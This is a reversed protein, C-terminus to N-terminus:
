WTENNNQNAYTISETLKLETFTRNNDYMGALFIKGNSLQILCSPLQNNFYKDPQLTSSGNKTVKYPYDGSIIKLGIITSKERVLLDTIDEQSRYLLASSSSGIGFFWGYNTGNVRLEGSSNVLFLADDCSKIIKIDNVFQDSIKTLSVKTYSRNNGVYKYIHENEDIFFFTFNTDNAVYRGDNYSNNIFNLINGESEVISKVKLTGLDLKMVKFFSKNVNFNFHFTDLVAVYVIGNKHVFVVLSPLISIGIDGTYVRTNIVRIDEIDQSNIVNKNEDELTFSLMDKSNLGSNISYYNYSGIVAWSSITTDYFFFFFSFYDTVGSYSLIQGFQYKEIKPVGARYTKKVEKITYNNGPNYSGMRNVKLVLEKQKTFYIYVFKPYGVISAYEVNFMTEINGAPPSTSVIVDSNVEGRSFDIDQGKRDTNENVLATFSGSYFMKSKTKSYVMHGGYLFFDQNIKKSRIDSYDQTTMGSPLQLPRSPMGDKPMYFIYLKGNLFIMSTYMQAGDNTGRRHYPKISFYSFDRTYEVNFIENAVNVFQLSSNLTDTWGRANKNFLYRIMMTGEEGTPILSASIPYDTDNKQQIKKIDDINKTYGATYTEPYVAIANGSTLIIVRLEAIIGNISIKTLKLNHYYCPMYDIVSSVPYEAEPLFGSSLAFKFLMPNKGLITLFETIQNPKVKVIKGKGQGLKWNDEYVVMDTYFLNLAKTASSSKKKLEAIEKNIDTVKDDIEKKKYFDTPIKADVETKTYYDTPIKNDVETKTYVEEKTYSDVPMRDNVLIINSYSYFVPDWFSEKKIAIIAFLVFKNNLNDPIYYKDKIKKYEIIIEEETPEKDGFVKECPVVYIANYDDMNAYLLQLTYDKRTHPIVKGAIIFLPFKDVANDNFSGSIPDYTKYQKKGKTIKGEESPLNKYNDILIKGDQKVEFEGSINSIFFKIDIYKRIKLNNIDDKNEDIKANAYFMTERLFETEDKLWHSSITNNGVFLYGHRVITAERIYRPLPILKGLQYVLHKKGEWNDATITIRKGDITLTYSERLLEGIIIGVGGSQMQFVLHIAYKGSPINKLDSIDDGSDYINEIKDGEITDNGNTRNAVFFTITAKTQAPIKVSTYGFEVSSRDNPNFGANKMYITGAGINLTSDPNVTLNCTSRTPIWKTLDDIQKAVRRINVNNEEVLFVNDAVTNISFIKIKNSNNLEQSSLETDFTKSYVVDKLGKAKDTEDFDFTVDIYIHWLGNKVINNEKDTDLWQLKTETLDNIAPIEAIVRRVEGNSEELLLVSFAKHGFKNNYINYIVEIKSVVGQTESISAKEHITETQPILNSDLTKYVINGSTNRVVVHDIVDSSPDAPKSLYYGDTDAKKLYPSLDVTPISSLEYTNDDKRKIYGTNKDQASTATDLIKTINQSEIKGQSNGVALEDQNLKPYLPTDPEDPSKTRIIKVKKGDNVTSLFIFGGSDEGEGFVKYDTDLILDTDTVGDVLSVKIDQQARFLFPIKFIREGGDVDYIVNVM